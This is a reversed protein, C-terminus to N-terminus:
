HISLQGLEVLIENKFLRLYSNSIKVFKHAGQWESQSSKAQVDPLEFLLLALKHVFHLSELLNKFPLKYIM